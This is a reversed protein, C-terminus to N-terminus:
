WTWQRMNDEYNMKIDKLANRDYQRLSVNNKDAYQKVVPLQLNMPSSAISTLMDCLTSRGGYQVGLTFVDALYFMFDGNDM